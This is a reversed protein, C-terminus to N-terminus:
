QSQLESTHEESRYSHGMVGVRNKDVVGLSVAYDVAAKAGDVLQEVYTDNPEQDGEGIIPIAANELVAYGIQTFYVPSGGWGFSPFRNTSGAVQAAAARTKFEAPYAEMLTPLPGKSKDYGAPLWLTATLDLGDARKYHLLQHTPMAIGAYPSPFHTVPKYDSADAALSVQFYNPSDTASERRILLQNEGLLAVPQSFYPDASRFLVKEQGGAIPMAGVFPHDGTPSAGESIFYIGAGDPTLQLVPHGSANEETMPRGPNHYRDQSSGQYLTTTKGPTSPDFLIMATRRDSWRSETVLALHDNGWQIPGAGGGGGGFGRQVRMALEVITAPSGTFPAPVAKVRDRVDTKMKPDGNDAAEVWVITSPADSRWSFDRPGPEVADRSIPLNDVAPRDSLVHPAVTGKLSVIETLQPFREYPITYSFPKHVQNLLAYHGDPSPTVRELLGKIEFPHVTGALPVIALQSTAYYAFIAEDDPTKLLDEYTPAPRATGMNEQVHPGTPIESAKPAAARGAPVIKCLLGSSDPLWACPRGLVANLHVTGIRHAAATAVDIVWLEQGAAVAPSDVTRVFAIHKSDPSFSADGAKLKAPLGTVPKPEGGSVPALHLGVTYNEVSPGSTVPNFRIGALRYRPAAVDAITPFTAPQEILLVKRNPSLRAVPTPPATLLQEIPAPPKQYPLATQARTPAPSSLAALLTAAAVVSSRPNM